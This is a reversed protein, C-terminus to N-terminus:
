REMRRKKTLLAEQFEKYIVVPHIGDFHTADLTSDIKDLLRQEVSVDTIVDENM